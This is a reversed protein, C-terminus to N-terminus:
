FALHWFAPAMRPLARRLERHRKGLFAPIHRTQAFGFSKPLASYLSQPPQRGTIHKLVAGTEPRHM